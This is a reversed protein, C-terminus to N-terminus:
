ATQRRYYNKLNYEEMRAPNASVTACKIGVHHKQIAHAADVVVQNETDDRNTISLDFYRLDIDVYPMILQEKIMGWMVRTMEDGDLEVIPNKVKIKAM